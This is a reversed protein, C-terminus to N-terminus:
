NIVVDGYGIKKLLAKTFSIPVALAIDAGRLGGTLTGIIEGKDNYIAGGSNGGIVSASHQFLPIGVGSGFNIKRAPASIIGVTVSNDFSIGPNGVAYVTLGRKYAYSDPALPAQMEPKWDEDVVQVIATDTAADYGRVLARHTQVAVIDFNKDRKWTEITLPLREQVTSTKVEGTEPNIEKKQVERLNDTICHHATLVLRKKVDIITGSCVGGVIVNTLEIQRNMADIEWAYAGKIGLVLALVAGFLASLRM